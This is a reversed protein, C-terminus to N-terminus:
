WFVTAGEPIVTDITRDYFKGVDRWNLSTSSYYDVEVESEAIQLFIEDGPLLIVQYYTLM